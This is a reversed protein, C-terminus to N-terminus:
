SSASRSRPSSARRARKSRSSSSGLSHRWGGSSDKRQGRFHLSQTGRGCRRWSCSWSISRTWMGIIKVSVHELSSRLHHRNKQSPSAAHKSKGKHHWRLLLGHCSATRDVGLLSNMDKLMIRTLTRLTAARM